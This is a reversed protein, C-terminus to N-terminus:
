YGVAEIDEGIYEVASSLPYQIEPHSSVEQVFGGLGCKDPYAIQWFHPDGSLVKACEGSKCEALAVSLIACDIWGIKNGTVSGIKKSLLKRLRGAKHVIELSTEVYTSSELIKSRDKIFAEYDICSYGYLQGLEMLVIGPTVLASSQTTEILSQVDISLVRRPRFYEEWVYTDLVYRM